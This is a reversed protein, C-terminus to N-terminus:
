NILLWVFVAFSVLGTVFQIITTVGWGLIGGFGAKAAKWTDKLRAYETIFIGLFYGVLGGILGGIGLFFAGIVFGITSGVIGAAISWGSAGSSKAGLLPMWIESTAGFLSISVLLITPFIGIMQFDNWWAFGFTALGILVNGPIVPILCGVLGFLMILITLALVISLM